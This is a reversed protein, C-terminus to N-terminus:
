LLSAPTHKLHAHNQPQADQVLQFLPKTEKHLQEKIILSYHSFFQINYDELANM